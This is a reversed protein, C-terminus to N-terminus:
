VREPVEWKGSQASRFVAEIAAMNGIADELPNPVEKDDRAGKELNCRPCLAQGNSCSTAGGRSYAIRHDAHWSAPLLDGCRRCRGGSAWRLALKQTSNFFRRM